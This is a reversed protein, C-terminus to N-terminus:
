YQYTLWVRAHRGPETYSAVPAANRVSGGQPVNLASWYTRDFLNFVGAQIRLGKIGSPQWWATLDLVGYGPAQFDTAPDQVRSRRKAATMIAEAGWQTQRYGVGVIAKLPAISNLASGTDLDKGHAWALAGWAYWNSNMEGHVRAEAGYIRVRARNAFATVGMPYQGTWAPNWEASAPTLTVNEDIFDRYRNDFFTLSGGLKENGLETGLEWGRSVEAKLNPNGVRLYTGPAGYNMYLQAANPAKYGYGYSVYVKAQEALQWAFKLSPSVRQDSNSDLQGFAANPNSQYSSTSKASYHYADFRLAPTLAFRGGAWSIENQAWLAWQRGDVEPVDAQNSHLLDCSRPGFPAALGPRIMPCNDEGASAQTTRSSYWDLGAQWHNKIVGSPVTGSWTTTLGYGKEEVSNNRAYYGSPFGYRFPDGRIISARADVTRLGSQDSSVSSRQWYVRVQGQEVAATDTASRFDYGAVLRDRKQREEVGNHGALYSTGTGQERLNDIDNEWRFTEASFLLRNQVNLDHQLKLMASRQTYSAPNAKERNPGYGGVEGQNELADGRRSGVQLLWRTRADVLEGALAADANWGNDAGDYGSKVLAGFPKGDRLLDDPGLTRLDVLGTLSGTQPASAAGVVDIASLGSFNVTGQGGKEGRAGDTLWPLRIGDVRVTVRDQDMGRINVSKTQRSFNVAPDGRKGLDEWRTIARAELQERRLVTSGEPLSAEQRDGKVTVTSLQRVVVKGADAQVQPSADLPPEAAASAAAVVALVGATVSFPRSM